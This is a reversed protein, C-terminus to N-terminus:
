VQLPTQTTYRQATQHTHQEYSTARCLRQAACVDLLGASCLGSPEGPKSLM